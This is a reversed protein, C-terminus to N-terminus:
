CFLIEGFGTLCEISQNVSLYLVVLIRQQPISPNLNEFKSFMSSVARLSCRPTLGFLLPHLLFGNGEICESKGSFEDIPFLREV